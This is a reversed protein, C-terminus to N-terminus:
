SEPCNSVGNEEGRRLDESEEVEGSPAPLNKKVACRVIYMNGGLKSTIERPIPASQDEVARTWRPGESAARQALV